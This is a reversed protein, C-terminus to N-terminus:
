RPGHKFGWKQGAADRVTGDNVSVATAKGDAVIASVAVQNGNKVSDIGDRTANVLTDATLTYTKSYGDASKVTISDKSVATVEGRQTAVTQYGGGQKEVVFEGHLAGMMGFEGHRGMGGPGKGPKPDAPATPSTSPSPTPDANTTAWAVGGAATTVAVAAATGAVRWRKETLKQFSAM